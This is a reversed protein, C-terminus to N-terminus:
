LKEGKQKIDVGIGKSKSVSFDLFELHAEMRVEELIAQLQKQIQSNCLINVIVPLKINLQEKSKYIRSQTLVAVTYTVNTTPIDTEIEEKFRYNM